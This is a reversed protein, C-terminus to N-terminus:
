RVKSFVDQVKSYFLLTEFLWDFHEIERNTIRLLGNLYIRRYDYEPLKDLSNKLETCYVNKQKQLASMLEPIEFRIEMSEVYQHHVKELLDGIKKLHEEQSGLSAWVQIDNLAKNLKGEIESKERLWEKKENKLHIIQDQLELNQSQMSENEFKLRSQGKVSENRENKVREIDNSLLDVESSLFFHNKQYSKLEEKLQSNEKKLYFIKNEHFIRYIKRWACDICLAFMQSVRGLSQIAVSVIADLNLEKWLNKCFRFFKETRNDEFRCVEQVSM